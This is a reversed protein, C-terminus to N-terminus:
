LLHAVRWGLSPSGLSRGAVAYTSETSAGRLVVTAMREGRRVRASPRRALIQVPLTLGGWGIARLAGATAAATSQGDASSAVLVQTGAPIATEVRLAAAVSDGLLRASGLAAELLAGHRQGLVVGLETLRRAGVTVRKAFMLCGGASSDSGTKVGVYGDRGVLADLNAVRGAVPLEASPEDVVSAFAPKRLAARALTLQDAATSVTSPDFGSPDTYTTSTMGLERATTNMRSVFAGAGGAAHAALLAAVNNASPLMLAQLAQRETIQEGARVTLTSEGLGVRERQEAVDAPTITMSFGERGAALPHESLTLYATMVKALSAIPVPASGGSTLLGGVGEVEVAAQGQLPWRLSPPSGALRVRAPM